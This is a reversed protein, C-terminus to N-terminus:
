RLVTSCYAKRYLKGNFPYNALNLSSNYSVFDTCGCYTMLSTESENIQFVITPKNIGFAYGLEWNTGTTSVRGTSLVVVYDACNLMHVDIGFVRNAWEEQSMNWAHPVKTEWPCYVNFGRDRLTKAAKEADARYTKSCNSALYIQM